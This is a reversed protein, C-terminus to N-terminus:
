KNDELEKMIALRAEGSLGLLDETTREKIVRACEMIDHAFREGPAAAAAPEAPVSNDPFGGEARVDYRRATAAEDLEGQFVQCIEMVREIRENALPSYSSLERCKELYSGSEQLFYEIARAIRDDGIRVVSIRERIAASADIRDTVKKLRDEESEAVVERAGRRSFFLAGTIACYGLLIVIVPLLAYPRLFLLSLVVLSATVALLVSNLRSRLYLLFPNKVPM